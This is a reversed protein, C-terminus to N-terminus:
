EDADAPSIRPSLHILLYGALGYLAAAFLQFGHLLFGTATADSENWGAFQILGFRWAVEVVGFGSVNLPFASAFMGISIIAIMAPFDVQIGLARLLVYNTLFSSSYTFCSILLASLFLRPQRVRDLEDALQLWRSELAELLTAKGRLLRRFGPLLLGASGRILAGGFYLGLVCVFFTAVIILLLSERQQALAEASTLVGSAFVLIIILLELIRAGFLSSLGEEMSYNLRSRLLAIYSLEGLKFPLARVLFNHYLTIPVLLRWPTDDKDLLVRFRLARFLNLALYALLAGLWSGLAVRGLLQDFKAWEVEGVLAALLAVTVIVSAIRVILQRRERKNSSNATPPTLSDPM